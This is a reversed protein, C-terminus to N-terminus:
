IQSYDRKDMRLSSKLPKDILFAVSTPANTKRSFARTNGIAFATLAQGDIQNNLCDINIM